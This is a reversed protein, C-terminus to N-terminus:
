RTALPLDPTSSADPPVVAGLASAKPMSEGSPDSGLTSRDLSRTSKTQPGARANARQVARGRPNEKCFRLNKTCWETAFESRSLVHNRDARSNARTPSAMVSGRLGCFQQRHPFTHWERTKNQPQCPFPRQTVQPPKDPTDLLPIPVASSGKYRGSVGRRAIWTPAVIQLAINWVKDALVFRDHFEFTSSLNRRIM